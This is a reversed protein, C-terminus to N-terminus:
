TLAPAPFVEDGIGPCDAFNDLDVVGLLVALADLIDVTGDCNFDGWIGASGNIDIATGIAFCGAGPTEPVGGEDALIFTADEANLAGDCNADGWIHRQAPATPVPTPTAGCETGVAISAPTNTTIDYSISAADIINPIGDGDISDGLTLPSTGTGVAMLTIRALVGDGADYNPSLDAEQISFLGDSDPVADSLAFPTYGGPNSALLFGAVTMGTVQLVSQDYNLDMGFGSLGDEGGLGPNQPDTPVFVPIGKVVIDIEISDGNGISACAEINGVTTADNGTTNVDVAVLDVPASAASTSQTLGSMVLVSVFIAAVTSGAILLGTGLKSM